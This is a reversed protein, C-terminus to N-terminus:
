EKVFISKIKQILRSIFSEKKIEKPLNNINKTEKIEEDNNRKFMDSSIKDDDLLEQTTLLKKDYAQREEESCLYKRYIAALLAIAEQSLKIDAIDDHFEELIKDISDIQNANQKLGKIVDLPIKSIVEKNCHKLVGLVEGMANKYETNIM